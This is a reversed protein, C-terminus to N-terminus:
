VELLVWPLHHEAQPWDCYTHSHETVCTISFTGLLTLIM